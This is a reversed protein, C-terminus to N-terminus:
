EFQFNSVGIISGDASKEPQWSRVMIKPEAPNKLDFMLFLYGKDSYDSSYYYQGIQMGFVKQGEGTVRDISNDSFHINIFDKQGFQEEIREIYEGKSLKVYKILKDGLQQYLKEAHEDPKRKVVRGIIILADDSFVDKIFDIDKLCYPTKYQEVFNVILAKEEKTGYNKSMIDNIAKDSLSFTVGDIKDDKNFVFNVKETFSENSSTFDFKLPISRIISIDGVQLRKLTVKEPIIKANGYGILANFDRFGKATFHRRTKGVDKCIVSDIVQKLILAQEPNIESSYSVESQASNVAVPKVPTLLCRKENYSLKVPKMSKLTKTIEGSFGHQKFSCDIELKIFDMTSAMSKSISFYGNGSAWREYNSWAKGDFYKVLLGDAPIGNYSATLIYEYCNSGQIDKVSEINIEIQKLINEIENKLANSLLRYKGKFYYSITNKDPHTKLLMMAWYYNRVADVANNSDFAIEGEAVLSLILNKRDSFVRDRDEPTIYRYVTTRSDNSIPSVFKGANTLKVDSFTEVVSKCYEDVKSNDEKAINIFSSKVEVIIQSSLDQLALNDAEAETSATGKGVILERSNQKQKLEAETIAQLVIISLIFLIFLAQKKM